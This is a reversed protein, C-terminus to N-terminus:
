QDVAHVTRYGNGAYHAHSLKDQNSASDMLTRSPWMHHRSPVIASTNTSKHRPPKILKLRRPLQYKSNISDCLWPPPRVLRQLCCGSGRETKVSVHFKVMMM